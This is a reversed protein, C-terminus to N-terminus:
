EEYESSNTSDSQAKENPIDEGLGISDSDSESNEHISEVDSESDSYTVKKKQTTSGREDDSSGSSTSTPVTSAAQQDLNCLIRKRMPHLLNYYNTLCVCILTLTRLQEPSGRYGAETVSWLTKLRGFFNEVIVRDHEIFDNDADIQPDIDKGKKQKKLIVAEPYNDKDVGTYGKDFLVPYYSDCRRNGITREHVLRSLTKAARFITLDHMSGPYGCKADICIGDPDVIAQLKIGHRKHKVSYFQKQTEKNFSHIPILSADCAGIAEPFNDFQRKPKRHKIFKKLLTKKVKEAASMINRYLVSTEVDAIAAIKQLPQYSSCFHLLLFFQNKTDIQPQHGRHTPFCKEVKSWLYEFQPRTFRCFTPFMDDNLVQIALPKGAYPRKTDDAVKEEEEVPVIEEEPSRPSLAPAYQVDRKKNIENELRELRENFGDEIEQKYEEM